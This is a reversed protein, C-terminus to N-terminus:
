NLRACQASMITQCANYEEQSIIHLTDNLQCTKDSALSGIGFAHYAFQDGDQVLYSVKMENPMSVDVECSLENLEIEGSIAMDIVPEVDTSKFCPCLADLQEFLRATLANLTETHEACKAQMIAKCGAAEAQDILHIADGETCQMSDTDSMDFSFGIPVAYGINQPMESYEMGDRNENGTCIVSRDYQFLGNYNSNIDEMAKDLQEPKYCPCSLEDPLSGLSDTDTVTDRPFPTSDTGGTTGSANSTKTESSRSTPVAIGLIVATTAVAAVAAVIILKKKSDPTSFM